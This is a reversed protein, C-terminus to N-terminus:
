ESSIRSAVSAPPGERVVYLPRGSGLSIAVSLYESIVGLATLILGGLFLTATMVSAWGQPTQGGFVAGLVVAVLAAFALVTTAIGVGAIFRLPRTGATVILRRFHSFLSRARYGSGDPRREKRYDVREIAVNSVAWSLAVDLFVDHGAQDVVSRARHGDMARFSCIDAAYPMGSSWRLVRKALRSTTNRYFGHPPPSAPTGYVLDAGALVRAALRDVSAPDHLGDEDMTVVVDAQSAAIGAMTAAHQGYNRALWVTEIWDHHASLTTMVGASGDIAGDWVLILRRIDVTADRRFDDLEEVLADLVYEGQYVPVVVDVQTM